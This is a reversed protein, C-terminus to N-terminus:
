RLSDILGFWGPMINEKSFREAMLRAKEGCRKRMDTDDMMRSLAEAFSKIDDKGVLIGNVNNTIIDGAGYEFDFVVSPLGCAQAEILTMPQGEYRSTMIHLSYETYKEMINGCVGCLLVKDELGASSIQKQLMQKLSGEGYIHLQWDPHKMTVGKWIDILTDFGKQEELRGVAIAKKVGYDKVYSAPMKIFNPIVKVERAHRYATKDGETLCIVMDARREMLSFFTNYPNFIRPLHSEYIKVAKTHCMPLLLAGLTTTFFIIDPKVERLTKNLKIAAKLLTTIRNVATILHNNRNNVMPINMFLVKVDKSMDYRIPRDDKYVSIITVDHGKSSLTSAKESVIREVGGCIAFDEIIYAIKM